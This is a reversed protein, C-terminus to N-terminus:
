TRVPQGYVQWFHLEWHEILLISVYRNFTYKIERFFDKSMANRM